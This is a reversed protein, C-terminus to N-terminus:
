TTMTCYGSSRPFAPRSNRATVHIAKTAESPSGGRACPNRSGDTMTGTVSLGFALPRQMPNMSEQPIQRLRLAEVCDLARAIRIKLVKFIGVGVM